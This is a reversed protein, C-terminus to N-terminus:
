RNQMLSLAPDILAVGNWQLIVFHQLPGKWGSLMCKVTMARMLRKPSDFGLGEGDKFAGHLELVEIVRTRALPRRKVGIACKIFYNCLGERNSTM